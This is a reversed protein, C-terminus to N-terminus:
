IQKRKSIGSWPKQGSGRWNKDLQRQINVM